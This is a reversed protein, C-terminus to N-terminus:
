RCLMRTPRVAARPRMSTKAAYVYAYNRIATVNALHRIWGQRFIPFATVFFM